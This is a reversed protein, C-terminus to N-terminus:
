PIFSEPPTPISKSEEEEKLVSHTFTCTQLCTQVNTLSVEITSLCLSLKLLICTHSIHPYTGVVSTVTSVVENVASVSECMIVRKDCVNADYILVSIYSYMVNLLIIVQYLVM